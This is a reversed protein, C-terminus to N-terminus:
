AADQPALHAPGEYGIEIHNISREVVTVRCAACQRHPPEHRGCAIVAVTDGCRITVPTRCEGGPTIHVIDRGLECWHPETNGPCTHMLAHVDVTIITM